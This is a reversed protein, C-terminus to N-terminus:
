GNLLEKEIMKRKFQEINAHLFVKLGHFVLGIGWGFLPGASWAVEGSHIFNIIILMSNVLTYITLHIFFGIKAEVRSKARKFKKDNGM